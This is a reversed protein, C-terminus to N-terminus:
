FRESPPIYSSPAMCIWGLIIFSLFGFVGGLMFPVDIKLVSSLFDCFVALYIPALFWAQDSIDIKGMDRLRMRFVQFLGLFLLFNYFGAWNFPKPKSTKKHSSVVDNSDDYGNDTDYLSGVDLSRARTRADEIERLTGEISQDSHPQHMSASPVSGGMLGQVTAMMGQGGDPLFFAPIMVVFIVVNFLGRKMRVFPNLYWALIRELDRGVSGVM